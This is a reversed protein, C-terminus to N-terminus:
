ILEEEDPEMELTNANKRMRNIQSVKDQLYIDLAKRMIISDDKGLDTRVDAIHNRMAELTEVFDQFNPSGALIKLKHQLLKSSEM